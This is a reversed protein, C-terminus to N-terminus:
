VLSLPGDEEEWTAVWAVGFIALFFVSWIASASGIAAACQAGAVCKLYGTWFDWVLVAAHAGVMLWLFGDSWKRTFRKRFVIRDGNMDVILHLNWAVFFFFLINLLTLPASWLSTRLQYSFLITYLIRLILITILALRRQFVETDSVFPNLSRSLGPFCTRLNPCQRNLSVGLPSSHQRYTTYDNITVIPM